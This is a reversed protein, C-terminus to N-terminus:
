RATGDGDRPNHVLMSALSCLSCLCRTSWTREIAGATFALVSFESAPRIVTCDNVEPRAPSEVPSRLEIEFGEEEIWFCLVMASDTRSASV